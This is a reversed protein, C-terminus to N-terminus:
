SDDDLDWVELHAERLLRREEYRDLAERHVRAHRDQRRQRAAPAEARAQIDEHSASTNM